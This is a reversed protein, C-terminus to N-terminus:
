QENYLFEVIGDAAVDGYDTDTSAVAGENTVIGSRMALLGNVNDDENSHVFDNTTRLASYVNTDKESMTSSTTLIDITGFASAGNGSSLNKLSIISSSGISVGDIQKQLSGIKSYTAKEGVTYIASDWPLDMKREYGYIRSERYGEAAKDTILTNGDTDTLENDASDVLTIDEGEFLASSFLKVKRGIDYVKKYDPDLTGKPSRGYTIDSMMVCEYTNPDEAMEAIEEQAKTLLEKQASEVLGLDEIRSADWGILIFKDGETHTTDGEAQYDALSKPHMAVNPLWFGDAVETYEIRFYQGSDKIAANGHSQPNFKVNFTLGALAGTQFKVQLDTGYTQYDEDFVISGHTGDTDEDPTFTRIYYATYPETTKEGNTDNVEQTDEYTQVDKIESETRPYIDDFVLVKEVVERQQWDYNADREVDIYGGVDSPLTLRNTTIAQITTDRKLTSTDFYSSPLKTNLINSIVFTDGVSPTAGDVLSIAGSSYVYYLADQTDGLIYSGDSQLTAAKLHLTYYSNNRTTPTFGVSLTSADISKLPSSIQKWVNQAYLYCEVSIRFYVSTQADLTFARAAFKSADIEVTYTGVSSSAVPSATLQSSTFIKVESGNEVRYAELTIRVQSKETNLAYPNKSASRKAEESDYIVFKFTGSVKVADNAYTGAGITMPSATAINCLKLWEGLFVIWDDDKDRAYIHASVGDINFSSLAASQANDSDVSKTLYKDDFYESSLSEKFTFAGDKDVSGVTFIADGRDSNAPMNNTGGYVYVRTAYDAQSKKGEISAVNDGQVFDVQSSNNDQCKGFHIVSGEVWWETEFEEAITTLADYISVNEYSITKAEDLFETGIGNINCVATIRMGNYTLGERYLSRLLANIHSCWGAADVLKDTLVFSTERREGAHGADEYPYYKFITNKWAMYYAEMKLEYDWGGTSANYSPTQIETVLFERGGWETYAGIPFYIAEALSFHLEIYDEEMLTRKEVSDKYITPITCLIADTHPHHINLEM